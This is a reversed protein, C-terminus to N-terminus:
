VPASKAPHHLSTPNPSVWTKGRAPGALATLDTGFRRSYHNVDWADWNAPHDRHLQLLNAATGPALAERGSDLEVVSTVLGRGDVVVRLVGDDLLYGDEHATVTAHPPDAGPWVPLRSLAKM